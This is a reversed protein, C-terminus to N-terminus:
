TQLGQMSAARPRLWCYRHQQSPVQMWLGVWQRNHWGERSRQAQLQEASHEWPEAKLVGASSPWVGLQRHWGEFVGEARQEYLCVCQRRRGCCGWSCGGMLGVPQQRSLEVEELLVSPAGVVGAMGLLCALQHSHVAVLSDRRGSSASTPLYPM